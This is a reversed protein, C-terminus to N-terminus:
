QSIEGDQHVVKGLPHDEDCIYTYKVGKIMIYDGSTFEVRSLDFEREFGPLLPQEEDTPQMLKKAKELYYAIDNNLRHTCVLGDMEDFYPCYDCAPSQEMNCCKHAHITDSIDKTAFM